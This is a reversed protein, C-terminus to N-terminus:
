IATCPTCRKCRIPRSYVLIFLLNDGWHQLKGKTGGGIRRQRTHGERTRDSPYKKEYAGQLAPLCQEFEALTLVTASLFDRPRDKLTNYNLM